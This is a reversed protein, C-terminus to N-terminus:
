SGQKLCKGCDTISKGIWQRGKMCLVCVEQLTVSNLKTKEGEREGNGRESHPNWSHLPKTKSM